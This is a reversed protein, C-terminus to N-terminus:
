RADGPANETFINFDELTDRGALSNLPVTRAEVLIDSRGLRLVAAEGRAPGPVNMFLATARAPGFREALNHSDIFQVRSPVTRVTMAKMLDDFAEKNQFVKRAYGMWPECKFRRVWEEETPKVDLFPVRGYLSSDAM